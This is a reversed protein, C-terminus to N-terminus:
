QMTVGSITLTIASGTGQQGTLEDGSNMIQNMAQVLTANPAVQFNNVLANGAAQTAGGPVLFVSVTAPSGSTNCILVEKLIVSTSAPASYLTTSGAGPQGQYLRTPTFTTM